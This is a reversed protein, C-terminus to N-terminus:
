WAARTTHLMSTCPGLLGDSTSMIPILLDMLCQQARRRSFKGCWRGNAGNAGKTWEVEM